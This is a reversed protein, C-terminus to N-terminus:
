ARLFLPQPCGESGPSAPRAPRALGSYRAVVALGALYGAAMLPLKLSRPRGVEPAEALPSNLRRPM